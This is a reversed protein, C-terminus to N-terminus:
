DVNFKLDPQDAVVLTAGAKYIMDVLMICQQANRSLRAIDKSVVVDGSQLIGLMRNLERRDLKLGSVGNDCFYADINLSNDKCYDEIIKCQQAMEEENKLAVRCYGYVKGM